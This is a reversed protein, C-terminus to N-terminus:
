AGRSARHSGRTCTTTTTRGAARRHGAPRHAGPEPRRLRHGRRGRRLPRCPGARTGRRGRRREAARARRWKSWRTTSTSTSATRTRQTASGAALRRASTAAAACRSTASASAPRARTTRRSGACSVPADDAGHRRHGLPALHSEPREHRIPDWTFFARGEDPFRVGACWRPGGGARRGPRLEPVRGGPTATRAQLEAAPVGPSGLAALLALFM